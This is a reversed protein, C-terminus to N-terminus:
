KTGPIGIWSNASVVILREILIKDASSANVEDIAQTFENKVSQLTDNPKWM